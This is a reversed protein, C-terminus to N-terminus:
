GSLLRGCDVRACAQRGEVEIVDIERGIWYSGGVGEIEEAEPAHGAWGWVRSPPAEGTQQPKLSTNGLKVAQSPM